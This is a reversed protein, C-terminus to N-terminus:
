VKTPVIATKGSQSETMRRRNVYGNRMFGVMVLAMEWVNV